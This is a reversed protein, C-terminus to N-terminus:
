VILKIEKAIKRISFFDMIGQEPNLCVNILLSVRISFFYKKFGKAKCFSANNRISIKLTLM